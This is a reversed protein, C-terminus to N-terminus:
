AGVATFKRLSPLSFLENPYQVLFSQFSGVDFTEKNSLPLTLTPAVKDFSVCAFTRDMVLLSLMGLNVLSRIDSPINGRLAASSM